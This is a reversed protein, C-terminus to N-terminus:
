VPLRGGVSDRYRRSLRLAHGGHLLIAADGRGLRRVERVRDLRVIAGRHIRAFAHAPLQEALTTLSREILLTRGGIHIEAYDGAAAIWDIEDLRVLHTGGGNRVWLGQDDAPDPAVATDAPARTRLRRRVAAAAILAAYAVVSTDVNAVLVPRMMALPSPMRAGYVPWFVVVFLLVHLAVAAPYGALALITRAARPMPTAQVRDAAALVLPTLLGWISFVAATYGLTPWWDQRWGHYAAILQGQITCALVVVAWAAAAVGFAFLRGDAARRGAALFPAVYRTLAQM